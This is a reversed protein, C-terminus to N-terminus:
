KGRAKRIEKRMYEAFRAAGDSASMETESAYCSLAERVPSLWESPLRGLAWEGGAKKSLIKGERAYALVRCLNLTVYMPNEAADEPANEIDRWISDFYAEEPVPGFVKMIPEGWLTIGYKRLITFHAALDPDTGRMKEVYDEKDRVAWARHAASFHFSFPTPYGFPLCDARRVASLELGKGPAEKDLRLVESLFALKEARGPENETVVMLDVDSKAPNFCGMALSGHLYVGTLPDGFITKCVGVFDGLLERVREM